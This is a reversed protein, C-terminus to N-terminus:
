NNFKEYNDIALAKNFNEIGITGKENSDYDLLIKWVGEEKQLLVFFQGYSIREDPTNKNHINRYIGRETAKNESTIREFFRLTLHSTNGQQRKKQFSNKNGEIYDSYSTINGSGGTVRTLSKSHIKALITYDLTEFAKCFPYWVEKNITELREKQQAFTNTLCFLGIFFIIHKYKM